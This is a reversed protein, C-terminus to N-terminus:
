GVYKVVAVSCPAHWAVKSSVSGLMEHKVDTTGTAGLIILDYEGAEAEGLIEMAPNGEAIMTTASLGLRDLVRRTEEVVEEAEMRLERELQVEPDVKDFVAEPYDDPYHFWERDLGLRVWPTEVVHILTIEASAVNFCSTMTHLAHASALSGDVALLMRLSREAIMERAVLVTGAAYEVVRSAVPGIGPQTREYRGHAGLVIVDYEAAMRVIVDAPSGIETLAVPDIGEARLVEQAQELIRRTEVAIRRQYQERIRGGKEQEKKEKIKRPSFQPAVCLVHVHHDGKHLLRSATRLATTADKSGDTTMLIKM